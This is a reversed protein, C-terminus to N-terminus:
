KFVVLDTGSSVALQDADDMTPAHSGRVCVLM